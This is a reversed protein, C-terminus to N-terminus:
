RCAVHRDFKASSSSTSFTLNEDCLQHHMVNKPHGTDALVAPYPCCDISALCAANTTYVCDVAM